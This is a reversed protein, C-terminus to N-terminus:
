SRPRSIILGFSTCIFGDVSLKLHASDSPEIGPLQSNPIDILRDLVGNGPSYDLTAVDFGSARLRVVLQDIHARQFLVTGWNDITEGGELNFELTHVAIGGSRLTGLSAEIFALGKAISGLHELACASWCFDFQAALDAPISNMDVSRFDIRELAAPEPCISPFRVEQLSRALQGTEDWRSAGAADVYDTALVSPGYKVFLSPLPEHGCGFGLGRSGPVLKGHSHLAQAIYCHEWLKRHYRLPTGLENCWLRFWDSEFDSQTCMKSRAAGHSGYSSAGLPQAALKAATLESGLVRVNAALIEYSRFRENFWTMNPHGDKVRAGQSRLARDSGILKLEDVEQRLADLKAKLSLVDEDARQRAGNSKRGFWAM